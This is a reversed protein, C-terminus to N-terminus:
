ILVDENLIALFFDSNKISFDCIGKIYKKYSIWSLKTRITNEDSITLYM